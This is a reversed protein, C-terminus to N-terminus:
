YRSHATGLQSEIWDRAQAVTDCHHQREPHTHTDIYRDILAVVNPDVAVSVQLVRSNTLSHAFSLGVLEDVESPDVNHPQGDLYDFIQYLLDDFRPDRGIAEYSHLVDKISCPGTFKAVLGRDEWTIQYPM